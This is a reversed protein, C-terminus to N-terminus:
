CAQLALNDVSAGDRERDRERERGERHVCGLLYPLSQCRLSMHGSTLDIGLRKRETAVVGRKKTMSALLGSDLDKKRTWSRCKIM